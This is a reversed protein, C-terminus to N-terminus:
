QKIFKAYYESKATTIKVIYMGGALGSIDVTMSKGVFSNFVLTSILRGTVDTIEIKADGNMTGNFELTIAKNAPNPFLGIDNNDTINQIGECVVVYLTDTASAKCGFRNSDTYTIIYMGVSDPTIHNGGIIKPGTYTGGSPSGGGLIYVQAIECLTDKPVGNITLELTVEPAPVVKIQYCTDKECVGNSVSVSYCTTTIPKVNIISSTAGTSWLYTTGGSVTITTSDGICITDKGSFVPSPKAVVDIYTTKTLSDSGGSNTSKLKVSYYGPTNYVVKPNQLASTAPNGGTFTWLWSTPNNTSQDTFFLTDGTCVITDSVTFATVPPPNSPASLMISDLAISPDKGIGDGDNSWKFGLQVNPNNNASAPLPISFYTWRGQGLCGTNNTPPAYALFAWTTGNFYEVTDNDHGVQGDMIYNFSLTINSKGTCNIVPSKLRKNTVVSPSNSADYSAGCDGAPCFASAPSGAVNGVHATAHTGTGSGCQGRGMGQEQYSFYWDNSSTGCNTSDITWTGEPGTYTHCLKPCSTGTWNEFWFTQANCFAMCCIVALLLLTNKKKM